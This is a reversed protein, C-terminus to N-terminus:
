TKLFSIIDNLLKTNNKNIILTHSMEEYVVLQKNENTCLNYLKLAAEKPVLQDFKGWAIFLPNKIEKIELNIIKIIERFTKFSRRFHKVFYKRKVFGLGLKDDELVKLLKEKYCTKQKEDKLLFAKQYYYLCKLFHKIRSLTFRFNLYKNAPALLILKNFAYHQSLYVALAGGLSFGIVDIIEYNLQLRKFVTHLM